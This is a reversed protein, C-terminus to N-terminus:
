GAGAPDFVTGELTRSNGRFLAIKLNDQNTVVVDYIGSRKARHVETATATLTDGMKGPSLFSISNNQAVAIRNYSNCAFAFASDALTFIFGGHCINHGNTHRDTVKMSLVASGPDVRDLSIGLSKSADDKSWMAEASLRAIEDATQAM